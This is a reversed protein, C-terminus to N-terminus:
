LQHEGLCRRYIAATRRAIDDWRLQAAISQARAGMAALDMEKVKRAVNGLGTQDAPDYLLGADPPVLEPLCGLAPAIVPLGYTMGLIVSGSTLVQDFCFVMVDAARLFRQVQNDPIFGAHVRIRADTRSLEQLSRTLAPARDRGAIIAVDEADGQQQFVRVFRDIGKYSSINGLLLYVFRDAPIDLSDRAEVKTLSMPHVGAYTGHPVVDIPKGVAFRRQLQTRGAECHVIIADAQAIVIRRVLVHLPTLPLNHPLLNHATWVLRYGLRRALALRGLFTAMRLPTLYRQMYLGSLWHLHLIAVCQREQLLWSPPPMAILFKVQVGTAVLSAALLHQYPNRYVPLFGVTLDQDM